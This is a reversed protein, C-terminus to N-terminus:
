GEVISIVPDNGRTIQKPKSGDKTQLVYLHAAGSANSSYLLTRGDISLDIRYILPISFLESISVSM